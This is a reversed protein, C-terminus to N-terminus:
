QHHHRLLELITVNPAGMKELRLYNSREGFAGAIALVLAACAIIIATRSM